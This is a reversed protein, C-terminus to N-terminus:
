NKISNLYCDVACEALEHMRKQKIFVHYLLITEDCVLQLDNMSKTLSLWKLCLECLYWNKITELQQLREEYNDFTDSTDPSVTYNVVDQEMWLFSDSFPFICKRIQESLAQQESHSARLVLCFLRHFVREKEMNEYLDNYLHRVHDISHDLMTNVELYAGLKGKLLFYRYLRNIYILKEVEAEEVTILYKFVEIIDLDKESLTKDTQLTDIKALNVDKLDNLEEEFCYKITELVAYDYDLGYSEIRAKIRMQDNFDNGLHSFFYKRLLLTQGELSNVKAMCEFVLEDDKYGMQILADVFAVLLNLVSEVSFSVFGSQVLIVGVNTLFLVFQLLQEDNEVNDGAEQFHNLVEQFAFSIDDGNRRIFASILHKQVMRILDDSDLLALVQEYSNAMWERRAGVTEAECSVVFCCTLVFLLDDWKLKLENAAEFCQTYDGSVLFFILREYPNKSQQALAHCTELFLASPSQSNYVLFALINQGNEQLVTAIKSTDQESRLLAYVYKFVKKDPAKLSSLGPPVGVEKATSSSSVEILWEKIGKAMRYEYNDQDEDNESNSLLTDLLQLTVKEVGQFYKSDYPSLQNLYQQIISSSALPSFQPSFLHM